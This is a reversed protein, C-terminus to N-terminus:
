SQRTEATRLLGYEESIKCSLGERLYLPTLTVMHFGPFCSEAEVNEGLLCGVIPRHTWVRDPLSVLYGTVM